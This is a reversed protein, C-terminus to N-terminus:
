LHFIMFSLDYTFSSFRFRLSSHFLYVFPSVSLCFLCVPLGVPPCVPLCASLYISLIEFAFIGSIIISVPSRKCPKLDKVFPIPEEQLHIDALNLEVEGIADNRSFRDYDLVQLYLTRQILKQYPFGEFTFAENWSPNLNKRKVRTELKNKKDPLLLVKVFPDSTGSLDKAPLNTAKQILLKLVLEESFYRLTFYITGLKEHRGGPAPPEPEAPIEVEGLGDGSADSGKLFSTLDRSPPQVTHETLVPSLSPTIAGYEVRRKGFGPEQLPVRSPTSPVSSAREERLPLPLKLQPDSYRPAKLIEEKVVDKGEEEENERDKSKKFCYTCLAVFSFLTVISAVAVPLLWSIHQTLPTM